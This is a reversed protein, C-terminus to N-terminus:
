LKTQCLELQATPLTKSNKRINKYVGTEGDRAVVTKCNGIEVPNCCSCYINDNGGPTGHASYIGHICRPLSGAINKM